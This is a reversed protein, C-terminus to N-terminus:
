INLVCCHSMSKSPIHQQVRGREVSETGKPYSSFSTSMPIVAFGQLEPLDDIDDEHARAARRTTSSIGHCRAEESVEVDDRLRRLRAQPHLKVQAAQCKKYSRQM